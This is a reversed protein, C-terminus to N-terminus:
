RTASPTQTVFKSPDLAGYNVVGTGTGPAGGFFHGGGQAGMAYAQTLLDTGFNVLANANTIVNYGNMLLPFQTIFHIGSGGAVDGPLVNNFDGGLAISGYGLTGQLAAGTNADALVNGLYVYGPWYFSGTTAINGSSQLV